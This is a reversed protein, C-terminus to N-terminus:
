ESVPRVSHGYYRDLYNLRGVLDSYFFVYWASDPRGTSLSSSWYLGFLGADSLYTGNRYGATPLFISNGNPGTVKRGNVGNQSTLTWTCKTKLETWEADTPMRWTGGWNIRAADDAFDLVTKNDVTGYSSYTNYKTQTNSRGNCWKYTSWSYDWKPETEGWAFYAGHGEPRSAGINWSAWKVSLGLDVAEAISGDVNPEIPYDGIPRIRDAYASWNTRVKYMEVMGSPVYLITYDKNFSDGSISVPSTSPIILHRLYGFANSGISTVSAPLELTYDNTEFRCGNFANADISTLNSPWTITTLASCGSFCSAPIFTLGSPLVVSKLASCNQFVSNGISVGDALSVTLLASCGSFASYDISTLSAPFDIAALGSCNQFATNGITKVGSPLEIEALKSCGSFASSGISTVGSSLAISELSSCGNFCNNPISTIGNPLVVSKLSSCNQFVSAEISVGDALSVTLLASCGSFASYDISTLSAPFDIAALGSCNQFATNGITKVGSPLEIEALKSCGRFCYNPVSTIGSPLDVNTLSSCGDFCLAPLSSIADPLVVSELSTCNQFTGLTTIFEPISISKLKALGSFVRETSRVGTFYKIEDFNTVTNWDKFLGSLSTAAAAEEYSVEGDGNTDFKEVCAYKAIPDAFQIVSSPDPEDGSGSEKFILGEDADALSGYRGRGITVSSSSNLKATETGKSFVMKFGKSLTGPIAEIYYWTGTQFTGGGPANLTIVTEGESVEKIVPIGGEFALKIKGALNEGNNSQFTVSKIGEQTLSFRIGGTVNYFGLDVSNANTAALSIHTNKAFSGARGTQESPLTTTVTSGDSVADSRYPYLGFIKTTSSAGENAGVLINLSGSFDAVTAEATNQSIFRSGSGKFFVKIEDAPEWYVQTGSNQVTTKTERSSEQYARFTMQIGDPEPQESTKSCAVLILAAVAFLIYRTKM